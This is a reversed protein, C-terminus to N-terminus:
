CLWSAKCIYLYETLSSIRLFCFNIKNQYIFISFWLSINDAKIDATRTM